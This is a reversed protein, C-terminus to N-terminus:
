SPRSCIARAAARASRSPGRGSRWRPRRREGAREEDEEVPEPDDRGRHVPFRLWAPARLYAHDCVGTRGGSLPPLEPRHCGVRDRATAQAPQGLQAGLAAQDEGHEVVEVRALEARGGRARGLDVGHHGGGRVLGVLDLVGRVVLALREPGVDLADACASVPDSTAALPVCPSAM